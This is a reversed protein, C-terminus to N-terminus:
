KAFRSNSAVMGEPASFMPDIGATVPKEVPKKVKSAPPEMTGGMAASATRVNEDSMPAPLARKIASQVPAKDPPPSKKLETTYKKGNWEFVKLGANRADSFARKFPVPSIKAPQQDAMAGGTADNAPKNVVEDFAAGMAQSDEAAKDVMLGATPEGGKSITKFEEAYGNEEAAQGNDMVDM